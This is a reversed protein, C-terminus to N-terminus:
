NQKLLKDLLQGGICKMVQHIRLNDCILVKPLQQRCSLTLTCSISCMHLWISRFYEVHVGDTWVRVPRNLNMNETMLTWKM